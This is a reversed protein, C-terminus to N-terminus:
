CVHTTSRKSTIIAWSLHMKNAEQLLYVSQLLTPYLRRNTINNHTFRKSFFTFAFNLSPILISFTPPGVKSLLNPRM